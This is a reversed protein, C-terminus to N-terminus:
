RGHVFKHESMKVKLPMKQARNHPNAHIKIACFIIVVGRNKEQGDVWDASMSFASGLTESNFM